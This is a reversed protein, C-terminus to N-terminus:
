QFHMAKPYKLILDEPHPNHWLPTYSFLLVYIFATFMCLPIIIKLPYESKKFGIEKPTMNYKLRIWLFTFLMFTIPSFFRFSNRLTEGEFFFDCFLYIAVVVLFNIGLVFFADIMTLKSINFNEEIPVFPENM